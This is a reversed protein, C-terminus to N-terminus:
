TLDLDEYIAANITNQRLQHRPEGPMGNTIWSVVLGHRPDAFACGCQNGSHGYTDDSAHPGYGYQDLQGYRKSDLKLGFGWDVTQKFTEDFMGQRQRAVMAHSTEARLLRGDHHILSLYVNALERAPGRANAGPRCVTMGDVLHNGPFDPVVLAETGDYESPEIGVTSCDAHVRAFVEERVYREFPRGDLRRILEGLVFWSSGVHYGAKEGPVWGPEQKLAYVRDLIAEWPGPAFNNLPGRFGGTHTLLHRLTIPTKGHAAFEPIIEAVRTDLSARGHELQQLIAIAALPKGASMWLQRTGRTMPLAGARADGLAEDIVCRGQRWVYIQAGPHLGTSIGDTLVHLTRRM